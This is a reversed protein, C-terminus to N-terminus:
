TTRMRRRRRVYLWAAPLGLGAGLMLVSTPEPTILTLHVTGSDNVPNGNLDHIKATWGIDVFYSPPLDPLSVATVVRFEGLPVEGTGGNKVDFGANIFTLDAFPVITPPSYNPLPGSPRNTFSTAWPGSPVGGPAATTSGPDHVGGLEHLTFSDFLEVQFGPDLSVEVIYIYFPDGFKKIGGGSIMIGAQATSAAQFIVGLVVMALFWRAAHARQVM